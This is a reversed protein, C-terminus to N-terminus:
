KEQAKRVIALRKAINQIAEQKIKEYEPHDPKYLKGNIYIEGQEGSKGGKAMIM